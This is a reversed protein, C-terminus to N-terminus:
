EALNDGDVHIISSYKGVHHVMEEKVKVVWKGNKEGQLSCSCVVICTRESFGEM